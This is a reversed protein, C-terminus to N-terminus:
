QESRQDVLEFVAEFGDASRWRERLLPQKRAQRGSEADTVVIWFVRGSQLRRIASSDLGGGRLERQLQFHSAPFFGSYGNVINLGTVASDIMWRVTAQFDDPAHGQVYPLILVGEGALVESQLFEAWGQRASLRQVEVHGPVVWWSEFAVMLGLSVAVVRQIRFSSGVCRSFCDQLRDLGIGALLIIAGQVFFAFRFASRVQVLGPLWDCLVSWIKWSGLQLNVGLSLLAAALALLSLSLVLRRMLPLDTSVFVLIVAAIALVTRLWGVGLNWPRGARQSTVSLLSQEPARLYDAPVASLVAVTEERREFGREQLVQQVPWLLLAVPPLALLAVGCVLSLWRSLFRWSVLVWGAIMLLLGFCLTHHVCTAPLCVAALATEFVLRVSHSTGAGRDAAVTAIRLLTSLLWFSPWLCTLQLVELQTLLLPHLTMACGAAAASWFGCGCGRLLWCATVGNLFLNGALWCNYALAVSGSIRVLPQLCATLPMPESFAFCWREPFFIPADWWGQFGREISTANWLITWANFLPVTASGGRTVPIRDLPATVVSLLPLLSLVGLVSLLLLERYVARGNRAATLSQTLTLPLCM